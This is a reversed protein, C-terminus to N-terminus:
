LKLSHAVGDDGVAIVAAEVIYLLLYVCAINESAVLGVFRSINGYIDSRLVWVSDPINHLKTCRKPVIAMDNTDFM